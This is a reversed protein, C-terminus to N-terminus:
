GGLLKGLLQGAGRAFKAIVWDAGPGAEYLVAATEYHGGGDLAGRGVARGADALVPQEM